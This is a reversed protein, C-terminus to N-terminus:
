VRFVDGARVADIRGTFVEAARAVQQSRDVGPPVHTLVLRGAGVDRAYGAAQRATLHQLRDQDGPVLTAECLLVDVGEGLPGPCWGSGTDASYLLTRGGASARVALTEVPHDTLGFGLALDGVPLSSGATVTHWELTPGLEHLLTRALRGTGATAHVPLGEVELVYRLANHLLPVDLWHDPHEHTLVLADLATLGVHRQLNALTGSGLDVAVATTGTRLLYGSCADGPAAYTGSSGLVTVTLPGSEHM